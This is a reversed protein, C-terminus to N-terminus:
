QNRRGPRIKTWSDLPLAGPALIKFPQLNWVRAQFLRLIRCFRLKFTDPLYHQPNPAYLRGVSDREAERVSFKLTIIEMIIIFIIM